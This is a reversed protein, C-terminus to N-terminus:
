RSLVKSLGTSSYTFGIESVGVATEFALVCGEQSGPSQELQVLEIESSQGTRRVCTFLVEFSGLGTPAMALDSARGALIAVM